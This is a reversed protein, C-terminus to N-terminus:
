WSGGAGGGGFGGGGFGGFGGGGGGGGFGGGGSGGFSGPFIVPGGWGRYGRRSMYGGGKNGGGFMGMLISIVVLGVIIKGFSIGKSKDRDSYGEPASYEGAAARMLADTSQDFAVYFNGARMNPVLLEDFIYGATMDPIAGELGRGIAIFAKRRGEEQEGTSVLIVIGNDFNAQGGVGWYEGLETAYPSPEYGKLTPLVVIAIQNSTSDDYAVLKQELASIQEPTMIKEPDPVLINVLRPPSPKPPLDKDQQAFAFGFSFLAIIILIKKM